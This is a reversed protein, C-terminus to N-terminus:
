QDEYKADELKAAKTKVVRMQKKPNQKDQAYHHQAHDSSCESTWRLLRYLWGNSHVPGRRSHYERKIRRNDTRRTARWPVDDTIRGLWIFVVRISMNVTGIATIAAPNEIPPRSPAIKETTPAEARRM